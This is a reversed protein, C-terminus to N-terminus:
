SNGQGLSTKNAITIQHKIEMTIDKDETLIAGPYKFEKVRGYEQDDTQLMKTNTKKTVEMYKTKQTNITLGM